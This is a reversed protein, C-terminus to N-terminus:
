HDHVTVHVHSFLSFLISDQEYNFLRIYRENTVLTDCSLIAMRSNNTYFSVNASASKVPITDYLLKCFEGSSLLQTTTASM